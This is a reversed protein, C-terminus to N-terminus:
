EDLAEQLGRPRRKMVRRSTVDAGAIHTTPQKHWGGCNCLNNNFAQLM